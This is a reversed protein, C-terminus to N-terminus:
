VEKKFIMTVAYGLVFVLWSLYWLGYRMGVYFFIVFCIPYVIQDIRKEKPTDEKTNPLRILGSFIVMAIGIVAIALLLGLGLWFHTDILFVFPVVSAIIITIGSYLIIGKRHAMRKASDKPLLKGRLIEDVTIQYFDAIELMVNVDPLNEGREWKSVAQYSVNLQDALDKQTLNRAKRLQILFEATKNENM